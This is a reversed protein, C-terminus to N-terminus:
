HALDQALRRTREVLATVVGAAASSQHCWLKLRSVRTQHVGFGFVRSVASAKARRRRSLLPCSVHACPAGDRLLSARVGPVVAVTRTSRWRDARAMGAYRAEQGISLVGLAGYAGDVHLWVREQACVDAIQDLPDVAGTGVTGASAAVCCPLDGARRDAAIAERLAPVNMRFDDDVPVTRIASAGFGLLEAAKHLCSHGEQTVYLRLRPRAGQMGEARIDVRAATHPARAAALDVITAVSTREGATLAEPPRSGTLEM